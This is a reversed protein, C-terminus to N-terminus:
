GAHQIFCRALRTPQGLLRSMQRNVACPDLEPQSRPTSCNSTQPLAKYSVPVHSFASVAHELRRRTRVTSPDIEIREDKTAALGKCHTPLFNAQLVWAHVFQCLHNTFNSMQSKENCGKGDDCLRM